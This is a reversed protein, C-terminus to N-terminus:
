TGPGIQLRYAGRIAEAGLCGQEGPTSMTTQRPEPLHEKDGMLLLTLSSPLTEAWM